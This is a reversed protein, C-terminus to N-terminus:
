YLIIINVIYCFIIFFDCRWLLYLTCLDVVDGLRLRELYGLRFRELDGLCLREVAERLFFCDSNKNLGFLGSLDNSTYLCFDL